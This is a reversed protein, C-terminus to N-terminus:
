QDLAPHDAAAAPVGSRECPLYQILQILDNQFVVSGPTTAINIGLKFANEDTMRLKVQSGGGRALDELLNNLGKVLNQGGSAVTERMVEPNTLLFNSPSIADIYQRTYFDVKKAVQNDLGEVKGLTQHLHRAAILYSQKIYDYLFNERWDDHKFRRDAAHPEAVPRSQQGMLKMMSNQWLSVSDQWFKMQAEALKFPNTLLQAWAQFFAQAIGLEDSAGPLGGAKGRALFQSVLQGSKRAIDAYLAAVQTPDGTPKEPQRESM